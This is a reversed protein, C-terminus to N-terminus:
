GWTYEKRLRKMRNIREQLHMRQSRAYRCIECRRYNMKRRGAPYVAANEPYKHGRPCEGEPKRGGINFPLRDNQWQMERLRSEYLSLRREIEDIALKPM